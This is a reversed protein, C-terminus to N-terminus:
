KCTSPYSLVGTWPFNAVVGMIRVAERVKQYVLPIFTEKM